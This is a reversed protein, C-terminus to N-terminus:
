SFSSFRSIIRLKRIWLGATELEKFNAALLVTQRSLPGGNRSILDAVTNAQKRPANNPKKQDKAKYRERFRAKALQRSATLNFFCLTLQVASQARNPQQGDNSGVANNQM